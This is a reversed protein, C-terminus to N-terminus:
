QNRLFEALAPQQREKFATCLAIRELAQALVRPGGTYRPSRERFFADVESRGSETCFGATWRPFQAPADRPARAALADFNAKVFEFVLASGQPTSSLSWAIQAAERYDHAPDLMLALAARALGPDRFSGLGIYLARRERRDAAPVAAVLRDFLARDGGRAASQLVTEVMSGDVSGRLSLWGLALNRAEAQLSAANGDAALFEILTPRLRLTDDSDQARAAFGLAKAQAAFLQNLWREWAPRLAEDVLPRLDGLAWILSQAVDRNRHGAHRQLRVLATDLGLAGSRALAEVDGIDAVTAAIATPRAARQAGAQGRYDVRYYRSSEAAVWAPCHKGLPLDESEGKMLSCARKEGGAAEHHVCVPLQWVQAGGTAATLASGLPRYRQQRLRLMAGAPGCSLEVSLLPLGAQELFTEFAAGAAPEVQSLAALFDAANAVGDAHRALYRQLAQRFREEGLWREFMGLVAGGKAYTIPDFANFIDSNSAIPQRIRRASALADNKMAWNREHVSKARFEWAPAFQASIKDSLWTAFSENLWLDDWWAHTVLDGFWLHAIEHAAVHAYGQKFRPTEDQPRALILNSAYTILGPNEMAGGPRPVAISDLKEYPHAIGTYEETLELLRPTVQAAYRALPGQGRPTIIRLPTGKRGAKGADVIDFPGVGFAILYSPLPRTEAFRVRKMGSPKGDEQLLTESLTPTNSVAIDGVPVDLTLQWPVKYGPEDFCPFVRRAFISELQTYVYWDGAERLRFAGVSDRTSLEGRYEIRITMRGPALPTEPKFGAFEQGGPLVQLRRGGISASDISLFRANLWLVPTERRVELDIEIAGRFASEDPRLSLEVAYRLPRVGEPLRLAPPAEQAAVWQSFALLMAFLARM